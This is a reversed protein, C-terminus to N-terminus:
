KETLGFILKAAQARSLENLPRFSGDEFGSIIGAAVLKEVSEAAYESIEQSDSLQKRESLTIGKVACARAIMVAADQRTVVKEPMFTGNGTGNVIGARTAAKIYSASWRNNEVDAFDTEGDETDIGFATVLMKVFQERTVSKDPMFTGDPYGAVVDKLSLGKVAEYAWHSSTIDSYYVGLEQDNDKESNAPTDKVNMISSVASGSSSGGGGSSGGGSGSSGSSAENELVEIRTNLADIVEYPRQFNREVFAKNVEYATYKECYIAYDTKDLGLIAAYKEVVPGVTTSNKSNLLALVVAKEVTEKVDTMSQPKNENLNIAMIPYAADKMITYHENEASFDYDILSGYTDIFSSIDSETVTEPLSRLSDVIKLVNVVDQMTNFKRGTSPDVKCDKSRVAVFMKHITAKNTQYDEGLDIGLFLQNEKFLEELENETASEFAPLTINVLVNETYYQKLVSAMAPSKGAGTARVILYQGNEIGNLSFSISYNGNKDARTKGMRIINNVDSLPKAAAPNDSIEGYENKIDELGNEFAPDYIVVSIAQSYKEPTVGSVVIYENDSTIEFEANVTFGEAAGVSAPLMCMVIAIALALSIFKNKM